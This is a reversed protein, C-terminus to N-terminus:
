REYYKWHSLKNSNLIVIDTKIESIAKLESESVGLIQVPNPHAYKNVGSASFNGGIKMVFEKPSIFGDSKAIPLYGVNNGATVKIAVSKGKIYDVLKKAYFVKGNKENNKYYPIVLEKSSENRQLNFHKTLVTQIDNKFVGWWKVPILINYASGAKNKVFKIEGIQVKLKHKLEGFVNGEIDKVALEYEDGDLQALQFLTGKEFVKKATSRNQDLNALIEERQKVLDARTAGGNIKKTLEYLESQLEANKKQLASIKARREPDTKLKNLGDTISKKSLRIKAKTTLIINGAKGIAKSESHNLVEMFGATLVRVQQKTIKKNDVQLSSEVYSGAYESASNKADELNIRKAETFSDNDGLVYKETVSLVIEKDNDSVVNVSAQAASCVLAALIITKKIM